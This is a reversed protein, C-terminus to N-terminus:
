KKNHNESEQKTTRGAERKQTHINEHTLEEEKLYKSIYILMIGLDIAAMMLLFLMLIDIM